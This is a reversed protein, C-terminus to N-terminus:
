VSRGFAALLTTQPVDSRRGLGAADLGFHPTTLSDPMAFEALAWSTLDDSISAPPSITQAIDWTHIIIDHLRLRLVEAGSLEVSVHECRRDLAGPQAFADQQDRISSIAAERHNHESDFRELTAVMAADAPEGNLIQITFWNGGTVHDVLQALNWESCPTPLHWQDNDISACLREFTDSAQVLVDLDAAQRSTMRPLEVPEVAAASLVNGGGEVLGVTSEM